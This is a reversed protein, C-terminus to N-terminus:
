SQICLCIQKRLPKGDIVDKSKSCCHCEIETNIKSQIQIQSDHNDKGCCAFFKLCSALFKTPM